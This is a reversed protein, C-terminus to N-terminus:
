KYAKIWKKKDWSTHLCDHCLYIRGGSYMGAPTTSIEKGNKDVTIMSMKIHVDTVKDHACSKVSAIPGLMEIKGDDLVNIAM